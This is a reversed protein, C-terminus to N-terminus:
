STCQANAEAREGHPLHYRRQVDARPLVARFACGLVYVAALILLPEVVAVTRRAFWADRFRLSLWLLVAINATSVVLLSAWWIAVPNSWDLWAVNM